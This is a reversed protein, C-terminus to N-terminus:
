RDSEEYGLGDDEVVGEDILMNWDRDPIFAPQDDPVPLENGVMRLWEVRIDGTVSFACGNPSVMIFSRYNEIDDYFRPYKQPLLFERVTAIEDYDTVSAHEADGGMALIVWGEPKFVDPSM